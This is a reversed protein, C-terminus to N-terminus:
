KNGAINMVLNELALRADSSSIMQRSATLIAQFAKVFDMPSFRVANEWTKYARYPHMTCLPSEPHDAKAAEVIRRFTDPNTHEPINFKQGECRISLLRQFENHAAASIAMEPKSSSGKEQELTEILGPILELAKRANREALASAFVWSLTESNRSCVEFCDELTIVRADGAYAILKDLENRIRGADSGLTEALYSAANDNIRKGSSDLVITKIRHILNTLYDRSKVDAKEFWELKGGSSACVKECLKYFAKRRDLPGDSILTRDAPIGDKLFDSLKDLRSPKKKTSAEAAAEDFKNFHKLWVVKEPALFSPTELADLVRDLVPGAKESDEDGRIIELGANEEPIEGCLQRVLENSREKISFDENGSILYLAGGM